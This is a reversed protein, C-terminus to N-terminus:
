RQVVLVIDCTLRRRITSTNACGIMSNLCNM